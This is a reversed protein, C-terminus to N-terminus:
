SVREMVSDWDSRGITLYNRLAQKAQHTTIKSYDGVRPPYFLNELEETETDDMTGPQARAVLEVTGGICAVTGCETKAMWRAMNFEYSLKHTAIKVRNLPVHDVHVHIMKGADFLKLVEVLGDRVWPQIGLAEASLFDNSM